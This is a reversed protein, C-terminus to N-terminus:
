MKGATISPSSSNWGFRMPAVKKRRRLWVLPRPRPEIQKTTCAASRDSPSSSSGADGYLLKM